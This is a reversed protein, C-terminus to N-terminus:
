HKIHNFQKGQKEGDHQLSVTFDRIYAGQIYADRIYAWRIVLVFKGGFILGRIYAGRLILDFADKM